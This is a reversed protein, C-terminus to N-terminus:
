TYEKFYETRMLSFEYVNQTLLPSKRVLVANGGQIGIAWSFGILRPELLPEINGHEKKFEEIAAPIDTIEM